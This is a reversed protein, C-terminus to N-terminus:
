KKRKLTMYDEDELEKDDFYGCIKRGPYMTLIDKSNPLTVVRLIDRGEGINPYPIFYVDNIDLNNVKHEDLLRPRIDNFLKYIDVGCSFDDKHQEIIHEIAVYEDYDFVQNANYGCIINSFDLEVGLGKAIYPLAFYFSINLKEKRKLM